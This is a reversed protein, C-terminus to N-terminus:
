MSANARNNSLSRKQFLEILFFFFSFLSSFEPAIMQKASGMHLFCQPEGLKAGQRHREGPQLQAAIGPGKREM